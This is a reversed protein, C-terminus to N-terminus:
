KLVRLGMEWYTIAINLKSIKLEKMVPCKIDVESLSKKGKQRYTNWFNLLFETIKPKAMALEKSM